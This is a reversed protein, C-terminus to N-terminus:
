QRWFSIEFDHTRGHFRLLTVIEDDRGHKRGPKHEVTPARYEEKNRHKCKQRRVEYEGPDNGGAPDPSITVPIMKDTKDLDSFVLEYKMSKNKDIDGFDAPDRESRGLLGGRKMESGLKLNHSKALNLTTKYEEGPAVTQAAEQVVLIYTSGPRVDIHYGDASVDPGAFQSGSGLSSYILIAVAVALLLVLLTKMNM